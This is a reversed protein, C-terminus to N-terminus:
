GRQLPQLQRGAFCLKEFQQALRALSGRAEAVPQQIKQRAGQAVVRRQGIGLIQGPKKSRVGAFGAGPHIVGAIQRSQHQQALTQFPRQAQFELTFAAFAKEARGQHLGQEIPHKGGPHQPRPLASRAREVPPGGGPIQMHRHDGAQELLDGRRFAQLRQMEVLHQVPGPAREIPHHPLLKEPAELFFVGDLIEVFREQLSVVRRQALLQPDPVRRRFDDAILHRPHVGHQALFQAQGIAQGIRRHQHEIGAASGPGIQDLYQPPNLLGQVLLAARGQGGRLEFLRRQGPNEAKLNQGRGEHDGM